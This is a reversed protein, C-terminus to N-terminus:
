SSRIFPLREICYDDNDNIRNSNTLEKKEEIKQEIYNKDYESHNAKTCM